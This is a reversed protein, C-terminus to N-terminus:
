LREAAQRLWEEAEPAFHALGELAGAAYHGNLGLFEGKALYLEDDHGAERAQRIAQERVGDRANRVLVAPIESALVALDNGSDGAFVTRDLPVGETELLFRLAHLKNAGAPLVDLLGIEDQEDFSTILGFRVGLGELRRQVEGAVEALERRPDVYYSLKFRGLKQPPQVELGAVGALARSLDDRDAGAWDPELAREWADLATWREGDVRYITAGVDGVAFDPRPLGYSEIASEILRRDRGSVYALSLEPRAAVARLLPRARPSEPQPGNPLLTRDLDCCLLVRDPPASSM